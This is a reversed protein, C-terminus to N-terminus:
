RFTFQTSEIIDVTQSHPDKTHLRTSRYIEILVRPSARYEKGLIIESDFSLTEHTIKEQGDQTVLFIGNTSQQDIIEIKEGKINMVMHCRSITPHNLVIDARNDRGIIFSNILM